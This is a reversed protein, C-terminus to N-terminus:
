IQLGTVALPSLRWIASFNSTRSYVFLYVFCIGSTTNILHPNELVRPFKKFIQLGMIKRFNVADFYLIAFNVIHLVYGYDL